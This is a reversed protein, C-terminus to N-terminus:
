GGRDQGALRKRLALAYIILATLAFLFWQIAYAFHNNPIERPDPRANAELGALPPDAVIKFGKGNPAIVGFVLDGNWTPPNPERSWGIAVDIPVKAVEVPAKTVSDIYTGPDIACRAIHTYGVRGKLNRGAISRWGVVRSCVLTTRYYLLDKAYPEDPATVVDATTNQRGNYRTLLDEKQVKRDLQWLGLGVMVAVAAVVLLTPLIPIRRWSM